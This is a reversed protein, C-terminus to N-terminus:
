VLKPWDDPTLTRVSKAPVGYALVKEPIDEVVVAGAGVYAGPGITAGNKVIAGIGIWCNEGITVRGGIMVGPSITSYRGIRTDHGVTTSLNLVVHDELHIDSTLIVGATLIVGRGLTTSEHLRVSPHIASAFTFGKLELEGFWRKRLPTGIGGIICDSAAKLDSPNLIPRGYIMEGKRHNGEEVFGLIDKEEGRDEFISYVERAFGGAGLIYKRKFGM